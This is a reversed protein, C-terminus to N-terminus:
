RAEGHARIVQAPARDDDRPRRAANPARDCLPELAVACPHKRDIELGILGARALRKRGVQRRPLSVAGGNLRRELAESPKVGDHRIGAELM